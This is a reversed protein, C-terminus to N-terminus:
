RAETLRISQGIRQFAERFAQAESEPVVTVFYFLSGDALFTTYVGILEQGGLPSPNILPTGLATRQSIRLDRQDGALRLEPNSQAVAKLWANTAERLDRSGARTVGFEIGHSFVTQGNLQGYGNEPVVKIASKSALSTWNSPVEAQFVGGGNISRYQASPKPVPQGPTGVAQQAMEGGAAADSSGGGGQRKALQGMTQAAPLGAFVTKIPAFETEDAKGGITLLAAEKNIYVTRNGPDPHSSMWQPNGGSGKSERAITEFM